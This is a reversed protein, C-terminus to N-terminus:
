KPRRRGQKSSRFQDILDQVASVVFIADAQTSPAAGHIASNRITVAKKLRKLLASELNGRAEASDLMKSLGMMPADDPAVRGVIERLTQELVIASTAIAAAYSGIELLKASEALREDLLAYLFAARLRQRAKQLDTGYTLIRQHAVDFPFKSNEKAVIVLSKGLAQTFGLEYLVNPNGDTVDAIVIRAQVIAARIQELIFGPGAIEDARLVTLGVERAVPQVLQRYVEDFESAFPMLVFCLKSTAELIPAQKSSVAAAKLANSELEEFVDPRSKRLDQAAEADLQRQISEFFEVLVEDRKSRNRTTLSVIHIKDALAQEIQDARRFESWKSGV